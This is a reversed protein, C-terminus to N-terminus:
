QLRKISLFSHCCTRCFSVFPPVGLLLSMCSSPLCAWHWFANFLLSLRIACLIFFTVLPFFLAYLMSFLNLQITFNAFCHDSNGSYLKVAKTKATQYVVKSHWEARQVESTQWKVVIFLCPLLVSSFELWVVAM